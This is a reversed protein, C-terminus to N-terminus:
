IITQLSFCLLVAVTIGVFRIGDNRYEQTSGVWERMGATIHSSYM